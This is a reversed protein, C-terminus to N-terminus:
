EEWEWRLPEGFDDYIIKKRPRRKVPKPKEHMKKRRQELAAVVEPVYTREARPQQFANNDPKIPGNDNDHGSIGREVEDVAGGQRLFDAVQQEIEARIDAKTIPKKVVPLRDNSISTWNLMGFSAGPKLGEITDINVPYNSDTRFSSDSNPKGCILM